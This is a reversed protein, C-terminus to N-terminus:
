VSRLVLVKGATTVKRVAKNGEEAVYINRSSDVALNTPRYMRVNSGTGDVLGSSGYIGILTTVYGSPSLVRLVHKSWDAVYVYGLSDVAVASADFFYVNSALGDTVGVASSAGGMVASVYGTVLLECCSMFM